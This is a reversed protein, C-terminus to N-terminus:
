KLENNSQILHIIEKPSEQVYLADGNVTIRTDYESNGELRISSITSIQILESHFILNSDDVDIGLKELEVSEETNYLVNLEIWGKM